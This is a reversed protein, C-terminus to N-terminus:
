LRIALSYCEDLFRAQLESHFEESRGRRGSVPMRLRKEVTQGPLELSKNPRTLAIVEEDYLTCISM